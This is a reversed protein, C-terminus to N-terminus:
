TGKTEPLGTGPEAVPVWGARLVGRVVALGLLAGATDFAVDVPSGYRSPVFCQHIEDSVAYVVCFTLAWRAHQARWYAPWIRPARTLGRLLLTALVAYEAMHMGKRIVLRVRRMADESLNPAFWRLIPGIFRSTRRDSLLDGSGAFILAMWIAAPLWHRVRQFLRRMPPHLQGARGFALTKAFGELFDDISDGAELHEFLSPVPVRTGVFVPTGVRIDVDSHIVSQLKM